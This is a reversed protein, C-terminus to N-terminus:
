KQNRGYAATTPLQPLRSVNGGCRPACTGRRRMERPRGTFVRRDVSKSSECSTLTDSSGHTGEAPLEAFCGAGFPGYTPSCPNNIPRQPMDCLAMIRENQLPRVRHQGSALHLHQQELVM